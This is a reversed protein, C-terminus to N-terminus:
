QICGTRVSLQDPTADNSIRVKWTNNDEPMNTVVQTGLSVGHSGGLVVAWEETALCDELLNYDGAASTQQDHIDSIFSKDYCLLSVSVDDVSGDNRWSLAWTDADELDSRVLHSGPNLGFFGGAMVADGPCDAMLTATGSPTGGGTGGLKATYSPLPGDARCLIRIGVKDVTGDNKWNVKWTGENVPYSASIHTGRDAGFWGGSELSNALDCALTLSSFQNPGGPGFGSKEKIAHLPGGATSSAPGAFIAFAVALGM